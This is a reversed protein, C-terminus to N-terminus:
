GERTTWDYLLVPGIQHDIQSTLLKLLSACWHGNRPRVYSVRM